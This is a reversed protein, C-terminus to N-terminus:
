GRYKGSNGGGLIRTWTTRSRLRKPNARRSTTGVANKWTGLMCCSKLTNSQGSKGQTGHLAQTHLSTGRDASGIM